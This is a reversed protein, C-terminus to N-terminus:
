AAERAQQAHAILAESTFVVDDADTPRPRSSLWTSWGLRTAEPGTSGLQSTRVEEAKLVLRFEFDLDLGAYFHTLDLAERSAHGGPLFDCLEAYTMPGLRVAFKAQTNWVRDGLITTTGLQTNSG